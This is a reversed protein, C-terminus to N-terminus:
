IARIRKEKKLLYLFFPAGIFATIIGVPLEIPAVISRAITDAALLFVGGTLASVPLLRRHLPGVVLRAMHPVVLGVFGIIGAVSVAAAVLLSASIIMELQLRGEELGLHYAKEDGMLMIDLERYFFASIILGLVAFPLIIYVQRWRCNFFGGMLFFFIQHLESRNLIMLLTTVASFFSAVAIGSLLLITTPAKKGTKSIRYVFATSLMSGTFALVPLSTLGLFSLNLNLLYALTAGLAAGSSTGIVYPDAMPNRFLAQYIVGAVALVLGVLISVIIRPLRLNLIIMRDVPDVGSVFRPGIVPLSEVLTKIVQSVKLEASGLTLSLLALAVLILGLGLLLMVVKSLSNKKSLRQDGRNQDYRSM